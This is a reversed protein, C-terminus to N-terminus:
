RTLDMLGSGLTLICKWVEYLGGQVDILSSQITTDVATPLPMLFDSSHIGPNFLMEPALFREYGVDVTVKQYNPQAVIYKQFREIERYFITFEKM